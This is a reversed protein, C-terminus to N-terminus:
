FLMRATVVFRMSHGSEAPDFPYATVLSLMGTPTDLVLSSRRADVVDIGVVRYLHRQGPLTEIVISDDIDVRSLFRFSTDRRGVIVTNGREGPLPSTLLHGPGVALTHDGTGSLVVLDVDGKEALLRMVPFSGPWRREIDVLGHSDGREWARQMVGQALAADALPYNAEVPTLFGLCLLCSM